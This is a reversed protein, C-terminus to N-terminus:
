SFHRSLFLSCFLIHIPTFQFELHLQFFLSAWFSCVPQNTISNTGWDRRMKTEVHVAEPVQQQYTEERWKHHTLLEKNKDISILDCICQVDNKLTKWKMCYYHCNWCRCPWKISKYFTYVQGKANKSWM